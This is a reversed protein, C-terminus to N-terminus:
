TTTGILFHFPNLTYAHMSLKRFFFFFSFFSLEAIFLSLANTIEHCVALTFTKAIYVVPLNGTLELIM